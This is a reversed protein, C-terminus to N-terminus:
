CPWAQRGQGSPWGRSSSGEGSQKGGEGKPTRVGLFKCPQRCGSVLFFISPVPVHYINEKIPVVEGTGSSTSGTGRYPKGTM